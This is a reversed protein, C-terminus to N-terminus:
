IRKKRMSAIEGRDLLYFGLQILDEDGVVDKHELLIMMIMVMLLMEKMWMMMIMM